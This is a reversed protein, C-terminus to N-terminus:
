GRHGLEPTALRRYDKNFYLLPEAEEYRSDDVDLIFIAHSAASIRQFV